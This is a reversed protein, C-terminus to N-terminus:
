GPPKTAAENMLVAREAEVRDMPLNALATTVAQLFGRVESEKGEAYFITKTDDVGGNIVFDRRDIQFLALHEVLHTTGLTTLTEDARGVRFALCVAFPEPAEVWFTPVEGGRSVMM